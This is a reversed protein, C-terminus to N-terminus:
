DGEMMKWLEDVLKVNHGTGFNANAPQAAVFFVINAVIFICSVKELMDGRM